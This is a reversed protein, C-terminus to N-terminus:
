DRELVRYTRDPNLKGELSADAECLTVRRNQGLFHGTTELAKLKIKVLDNVKYHSYVFSFLKNIIGLNIFIYNKNSSSLTFLLLNLFCFLKLFAGPPIPFM